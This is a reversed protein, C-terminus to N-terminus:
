GGSVQIERPTAERVSDHPDFVLGREYHHSVAGLLGPLALQTVVLSSRESLAQRFTTVTCRHGVLVLEEAVTEPLAVVEAYSLRRLASMRAALLQSAEASLTTTDRM